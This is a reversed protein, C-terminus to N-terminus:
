SPRNYNHLINQQGTFSIGQLIQGHSTVCVEDWVYGFLAHCDTSSSDQIPRGPHGCVRISRQAM